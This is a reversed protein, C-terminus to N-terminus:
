KSTDYNLLDHSEIFSTLLQFTYNIDKIDCTEISSHMYRCPIGINITPGGEALIQISTADTGGFVSRSVGRQYPISGSEATKMLFNRLNRCNDAKFLVVPGEGLAIRSLDEQHAGPFDTAYDVDIIVYANCPAMRPAILSGRLGVEEQVLSFLKIHIPSPHKAYYDMLQVLLAIGIRDDLATGVVKDDIFEISPKLLALDGVHIKKNVIAPSLGTDIFLDQFVLGKPQGYQSLTDFGIVGPIDEHETHILVKSGLLTYPMMGIARFQLYGAPMINTIQLAVSDAHAAIGLIFTSDGPIDICLNGMHDQMSVYHYKGAIQQLFLQVNGEDTTPAIISTVDRLTNEM